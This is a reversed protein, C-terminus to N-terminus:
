FVDREKAEAEQLLKTARDIKTKMTAVIEKIQELSAQKEVAVPLTVNFDKELDEVLAADQEILAGEVGEFLNIYTDHVIKKAEAFDREASKGIVRDLRNKIEGLTALNGVPKDGESAAQSAGGQQQVKAAMKVAGLSQWMVTSLETQIARVEKASQGDEVGEKIGYIGQWIRAYLPVYNLEIAAHIQADEWAEILQGPKAKKADGAAYTTVVQNVVGLFVEVSKEYEALHAHLNKVDEGVEGHASARPAFSFALLAAMACAWACAPRFLPHTTTM